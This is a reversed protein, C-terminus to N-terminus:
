INWGNDKLADKLQCFPEEEIHHTILKEFDAANAEAWTLQGDTVTDPEISLYLPLAETYKQELMRCHAMYRITAPMQRATDPLSSYILKVADPQGSLVAQFIGDTQYQIGTQTTVYAQFIQVSRIREVAFSRPTAQPSVMALVSKGDTEENFIDAYMNKYPLTTEQKNQPRFCIWYLNREYINGNREAYTIHIPYQCCVAMLLKSSVDTVPDSEQQTNFYLNDIGEVRAIEAYAVFRTKGTIIEIGEIRWTFLDTQLHASRTDFLAQSSYPLTTIRLYPYNNLAAEITAKMNDEEQEPSTTEETSAAPEEEPSLPEEQLNETEEEHNTDTEEPMDTRIPQPPTELLATDTQLSTYAKVLQQTEKEAIRVTNAFAQKEKELSSCRSCLLENKRNCDAIIEQLRNIEKQLESLQKQTDILQTRRYAAEKNVDKVEFSLQQNRILLSENDDQLKEVDVDTLKRILHLLLKNM